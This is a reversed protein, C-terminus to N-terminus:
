KKSWKIGLILRQMFRHFACPEDGKEPYYKVSGIKASWDSYSPVDFPYAEDRRKFNTSNTM